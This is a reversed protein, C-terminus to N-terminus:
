KCLVKGLINKVSVFGYNRSDISSKYNDGITLIREKPVYNSYRIKSYQELTLPINEDNVHMIHEPEESFSLPTDEIAVCRKVVMKNNYLYIVIDNTKPKAWQILLSSGFPIVLGYALKNIIVYQGDTLAQNMSEGSIKVIDIVFIKLFLAICLVIIVNKKANM